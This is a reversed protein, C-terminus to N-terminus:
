SVDEASRDPRQGTLPGALPGDAGFKAADDIGLQRLVTVEAIRMAARSEPDQDDMGAVHLTGHIAYLMLESAWPWGVSEGQSKATDISVVMEGEIRPTEAVYGFSIVDTAYDHDLHKANLERITADDTIRLGIEGCLFGRLAAAATIARSLSPIDLRDNVTADVQIDVHLKEAQLDGQQLKSTPSPQMTTTGM